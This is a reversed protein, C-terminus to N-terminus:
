KRELEICIGVRDGYAGISSVENDLFNVIRDSMDYELCLGENNIIAVFEDSNMKNVIDRVKMNYGREEFINYLKLGVYVASATSFRSFAPATIM